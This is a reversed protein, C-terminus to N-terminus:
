SNPCPPQDKITILDIFRAEQLGYVKYKRCTDCLERFADAPTCRENRITQCHACFGNNLWTNLFFEHPTLHM